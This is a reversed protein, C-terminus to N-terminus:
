TIVYHHHTLLVLRSSTCFATIAPMGISAATPAGELRATLVAERNPIVSM